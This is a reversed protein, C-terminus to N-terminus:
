GRLPTIMFGPARARTRVMMKQHDYTRQGRGKGPKEQKAGPLML